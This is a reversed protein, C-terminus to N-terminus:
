PSERLDMLELLSWVGRSRPHRARSVTIIHTRIDDYSLVAEFASLQFCSPHFPLYPHASVPYLYSRHHFRLFSEGVSSSRLPTTWLGNTTVSPLEEKDEGEHSSVRYQVLLGQRRPHDIAETNM